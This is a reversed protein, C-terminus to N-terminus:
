KTLQNLNSGDGNMLYIESAPWRGKIFAVKNPTSWRAFFGEQNLPTVISGDVNMIYLRGPTGDRNSGFVIRKGDPLWAPYINNFGDNTIRVEHSGDANITYLQDKGTGHRDSYFVIRKNDSSFNPNLDSGESNTLRTQNSGDANMVYIEWNGDRDSSFAIRKGNRSWSPYSSKGRDKTLRRVASGDANMVYIDNKGDRNSMFAIQGNPSWSAWMDTAPNNTINKLDSGDARVVYVEPQGDKRLSFSLLSGDHSWAVDQYFNTKPQQRPATNTAFLIQASFAITAFAVIFPKNM